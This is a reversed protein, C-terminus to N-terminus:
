THPTAAQAQLGRLFAFTSRMRYVILGILITTTVGGVALAILENPVLAAATAAALGAGAGAAVPLLLSKGLAALGIGARQLAVLYCPMVIVITVGAQALGAGYIGDARTAAVLSAVLSVLWVLQIGLLLRTRALVVLYDYALQLLIRAGAALALWMLPRAAPLWRAGYVFGVLPRASGGLLLCVPLAVATLIRVASLFTGRMAVQDHQLRSFVAPAVNTVPPAFMNFPWSSLNLALVYLALSTAGLLHGVIVQDVSTVSFVILNSGSLPLGFRLLARAKARDFGFRLSEPAFAVLLVATLLAGAVQGVALSMAGHRSCALAVTLGTGAWTGVQAAIAAKGQEFRRQLLGAPTNCFGDIVIALALVRVVGAAAPAGMTAAFAPAVWYCGVYTAASVLVSVSTITPIIDLPDTEWRVIALSMGLENFNQMAFLAVLAVAYAGFSHPGLLRALMIGIGLGGLKSLATNAFNWGLARTAKAALTSRGRKM